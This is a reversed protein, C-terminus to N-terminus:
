GQSLSDLLALFDASHNLGGPTKIWIDFIPLNLVPGLSAIRGDWYQKTLLGSNFQFYEKETETMLMNYLIIGRRTEGGATLPEGTLVKDWTDAHLVLANMMDMESQLSAQITATRAERNGISLQIGVFILSLVVATSGVIEAIDALKSTNM